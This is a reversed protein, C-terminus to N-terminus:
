NKPQSVTKQEVLDLAERVVPNKLLEEHQSQGGFVKVRDLDSRLFRFTKLVQLRHEASKLQADVREIDSQLKTRQAFYGGTLTGGAQVELASISLHLHARKTELARIDIAVRLVERASELAIAASVEGWPPQLPSSRVLEMMAVFHGYLFEGLDRATPDKKTALEFASKSTEVAYQTVDAATPWLGTLDVMTTPRRVTYGYPNFLQPNRLSALLYKEDSVVFTYLKDASAFVGLPASMYRAEFHQLRSEEDQEKQTFLYRTPALGPNAGEFRARPEGYPYYAIEEVLNGADDTIVNSSGLHDQHYYQVRAAADPPTLDFAEATNLYIATGPALIKPLHSALMPASGPVRVRWGSGTPSHLPDFHWLLMGVPFLSAPYAELWPPAVYGGGAPVAVPAPGVYSGVVSLSAPGSAYLWLADGPRLATSATVVEYEAGPVRRWRYAGQIISGGSGLALPNSTEPTVAIGVLNWGRQLDIRQVRVARADLLGHIRAVRTDGMWAYKVPQGNDRVEFHRNIYSTASLSKGDTPVVKKTIRRDTYDYRYDATMEASDIRRLRDKHDWDATMGDIRKMNGNDDYTYTRGTSTSTLAHPGPQEGANRGARRESGSSGGYSIAGLDTVSLGKEVHAIDSTKRLMNGIKDYRYAITRGASDLRAPGALTYGTLRHMDDYRFTQTNRRPDSAAIGERIDEIVTINSAPDFSYQYRILDTSQGDPLTTHIETPRLRPDYGWSTAVGNGYEVREFQGSPRYRAASVIARGDTAGSIRNLLGRLGYTYKLHDGDPYVLNTPRDLSDYAFRTAYSVLLGPRLPDLVKKVQWDMRRRADYSTHEEGSLDCAAALYGEAFRRRERTGDGMDVHAAPLDYLYTVDVRDAAPDGTADLYNETLLRNARDYAYLNVQGKADETRTLNDNDDYRWRFHGRNPDNMLTKRGLSNYAITKRNEQADVILTLNGRADYSYRTHYEGCHGDCDRLNREVVHILRELGDNAHTVFAGPTNGATDNEDHTDVSLPHYAARSRAGEPESETAPQLTETMRGLADFTKAVRPRTPDPLEYASTSTAYPLLSISEIGRVNFGVAGSYIWENPADGEEKVGIVRGLGDVYQLADVTGGSPAERNRTVVANVYRDFGAADADPNALLYEYASTPSADSDGPLVTKVLRGFVDYKFESAPGPEDNLGWSTAQAVAAFGEHYNASMGLTYPGAALACGSDAYEPGQFAYGDLYIREATPYTAFSDDYSFTRRNNLADQTEIINGYSDFTNQRRALWRNESDLWEKRLTLNGSEVQCDGLNDYSQEAKEQVEGNKDSTASRCEYNVLWDITNRAFQWSRFREDNPETPNTFAFPDGGCLTGGDALSRRECLGTVCDANSLCLTDPDNSCSGSALTCGFAPLDPADVIGWNREATRNGFDDYDMSVLLDKRSGDGGEIVAARQKTQVPLQVPKGAVCTAQPLRGPHDPDEAQCPGLGDPCDSNVCCGVSTDGGCVTPTHLSRLEWLSYDHRFIRGGRCACTDDDGCDADSECSRAPEAGCTGACSEQRTELLKGKLGEEEAGGNATFEDTAGDADNNVGDPAGTHFHHRTVLSPQSRDGREIVEVEAFGRFEKERGDYFGDHFRFNTVYHDEGPQGDLDLGVRVTRRAVVTVPFPLRTRWPRGADRDRVYDRTSSTYDIQVVRGIGNTITRLLHAPVEGPLSFDLYSASGATGKRVLVLDTTGNGNMDVFEPHDIDFPPPIDPLRVLRHGGVNLWVRVRLADIYLLDSLGDNTVDQWTFRSPDTGYEAGSPGGTVLFSAGPSDCHGARGFGGRGVSPYVRIRVDHPGSELVVMDLLRDGTMDTLFTRGNPFYAGDIAACPAQAELTQGRNLFVEFQRSGGFGDPVTRMVDIRKDFDLDVFRVEPNEFGQSGLLGSYGAIGFTGPIAPFHSRGSGSYLLFVGTATDQPTLLDTVGDGDLDALQTGTAALNVAPAALEGRQEFAVAGTADPGMNEWWERRSPTLRMADALGDANLDILAGNPDSLVEAPFPQVPRWQSGGGGALFGLDLNTYEFRAPPLAAARVAAPRDAYTVGDAGTQAVEALRSVGPFCDRGTSCLAGVLGRGCTGAVADCAGIRDDDEYAFQYSRIRVAGTAVEEPCSALEGQVAGKGQESVGVTCIDVRRLRLSTVVEFGSRYDLVPDPRNDEYGFAVVHRGPLSAESHLTYEVRHLYVMRDITGFPDPLTGFPRYHYRIVNGNPDSSETLYWRFTRVCSSEEICTTGTNGCQAGACTAGDEIRASNEGGFTLKVGSPLECTWTNDQPDFHYRRFAAENEARFSGDSLPVLEEGDATVFTDKSHFTGGPQAPKDDYTPLGKDSQRQLYPIGSCSWGIGLIGNGDGGNYRLGLAPAQGNRGPPLTFKIGYAATGTNLHPEFSEGLGEISGPGAPLSIKQPSIGSKEAAFAPTFLLLAAAAFVRAHHVRKHHGIGMGIRLEGRRTM